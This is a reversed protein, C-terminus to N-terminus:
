VHARGIEHVARLRFPARRRVEALAYLLACSDMGGSYALCFKLGELPGALAQLKAQLQAPGFAEDRM